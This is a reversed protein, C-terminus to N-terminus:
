VSSRRRSFTGSLPRSLSGSDVLLIIEAAIGFIVPDHKGPASESAGSDPM